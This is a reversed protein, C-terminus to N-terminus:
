NTLVEGEKRKRGEDRGKKSFIKRRVRLTQMQDHGVNGKERLQV